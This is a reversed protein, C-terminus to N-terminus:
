FDGNESKTALGGFWNRRKCNPCEVPNSNRPIWENNCWRCRLLPMASDPKFPVTKFGFKEEEKEKRRVTKKVTM